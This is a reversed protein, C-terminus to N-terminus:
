HRLRHAACVSDAFRELYAPAYRRFIAQIAGM